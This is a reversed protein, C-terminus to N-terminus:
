RICGWYRGRARGIQFVRYQERPSADYAHRPMGAMRDLLWTGHYWGWAGEYSGAHHRFDPYANGKGTECVAVRWAFPTIWAPRTVIQGALALSALILSLAIVAISM